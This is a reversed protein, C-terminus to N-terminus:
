CCRAVTPTIVKSSTTAPLNWVRLPRGVCSSGCMEATSTAPDTGANPYRRWKAICENNITYDPQAFIRGSGDSAGGGPKLPENPITGSSGVALQAGNAESDTTGVVTLQKPGAAVTGISVDHSQIAQANTTEKEVWDAIVAERMLNYRDPTVGGASVFTAMYRNATATTTKFPAVRIFGEGGTSGASPNPGTIVATCPVSQATFTGTHAVQAEATKTLAAGPV